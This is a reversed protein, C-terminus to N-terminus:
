ELLHRTVLLLRHREEVAPLGELRLKVRFVLVSPREAVVLYSKVEGRRGDGSREM